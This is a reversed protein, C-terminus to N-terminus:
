SLRDILCNLQIFFEESGVLRLKDYYYVADYPSILLTRWETTILGNEGAPNEPHYEVFSSEPIDLWISKANDPCLTEWDTTVIYDGDLTVEIQPHHPYLAAYSGDRKLDGGAYEGWIWKEEDLSTLPIVYSCGVKLSFYSDILYTDDEILVSTGSLAEDGYWVKDVTLEYVVSSSQSHYVEKPGFKDNYTDYSYRKLYMDTIRGELIACSKSLMEESFPLVEATSQSAAAYESIIDPRIQGQPLPLSSYSVPLLSDAGSAAEQNMVPEPTSSHANKGTSAIASGGSSEASASLAGTDPVSADPAHSGTSEGPSAPSSSEGSVAGSDGGDHRASGALSGMSNIGSKGDASLSGSESMVYYVDPDAAAPDPSGPYSAASQYIGLGLLATLCLICGGAATKVATKRKYAKKKQYADRRELVAEAVERYNKM